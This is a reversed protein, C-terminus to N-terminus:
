HCAFDRGALRREAGIGAGHKGVTFRTLNAEALRAAEARRFRRWVERRTTRALWGPLRTIDRLECLHDFLIVCVDQFVDEADATPLGSRLALSYILGEYRAILANWAM